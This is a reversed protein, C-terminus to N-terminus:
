NSLFNEGEGRNAFGSFYEGMDEPSGIPGVIHLCEPDLDVGITPDSTNIERVSQVTFLLQRCLKFQIQGYLLLTMSPRFSTMM